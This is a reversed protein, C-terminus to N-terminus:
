AKPTPPPLRDLRETVRAAEPDGSAIYIERAVTWHHRAGEADDQRYGVDGLVVLAQAQYHRSGFEQTIELAETLLPEADDARGSQLYVKALSTLVNAYQVPDLNRLTNAAGRIAEIADDYQRKEAYVEGISRQTLALARDTGNVERIAKVQRLYTLASDLDGAGQVARALEGLAVARMPEDQAAEALELSARGEAEAGVGGVLLLCAANVFAEDLSHLGAAGDTVAAQFAWELEDDEVVVLGFNGADAFRDGESV